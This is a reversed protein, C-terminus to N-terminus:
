RVRVKATVVAIAADTELLPEQQKRAHTWWLAVGTFL